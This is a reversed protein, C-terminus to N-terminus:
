AMRFAQHELVFGGEQEVVQLEAIYGSPKGRYALDIWVVNNLKGMWQPDGAITFDALWGRNANWWKGDFTSDPPTSHILYHDQFLNYVNENWDEYAHAVMAEAEELKGACVADFFQRFVVLVQDNSPRTPWITHAM